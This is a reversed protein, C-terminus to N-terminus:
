KGMKKLGKMIEKVVTNAGERDGNLREINVHLEYNNTINMGGVTDLMNSINPKKIAPLVDKIKEMIKATDLIDRTQNKNLVLEKKHLLAVKGDNGAWEGTYGGSRFPILLKRGIQLKRPDPQANASAITSWKYPNGYYAKAIDWLTDGAKVTYYRPSPAPPPAPPTPKTPAPAPTPTYWNPSSVSTGSGTYATYGTQSVGNVQGVVSGSAYMMNDIALKNMEAFEKKVAESFSAFNQTLNDFNGKSMNTLEQSMLGLESTLSSFSGSIFQNRMDAWYKEDNLIEDYHTTINEKETDLESVKTDYSTQDAEKNANVADIQAQKQEELSQRLLEDQRAKMFDSIEEEVTALEKKLEEVKKRGELSNDRSLLSIKNLLEAKKTNKEDLQEQYEAQDKEDNMAKLKEDYVSNIKDVEEDYMDMKAKHAKELERKEIDIAKLAMDKMNGYYDKLQKIGDDAVKGRADSIEKEARLVALQADEWAEMAKDLEAKVAKSRDDNAGYKKVANDYQHQLSNKKNQTTAEEEGLKNAKEALLELQEQINDPDTLSLVDIKFEIDDTKAKIAEIATDYKTVIEGIFDNFIELSKNKIDNTISEVSNKLSAIKSLNSDYEQQLKNYEDRQAKTHKSTNSLQKLRNNVTKNRAETASLEKKSISLITNQYSITQKLADRYAVTNKAIRQMRTELQSLLGNYVVLQRDNLSAGKNLEALEENEAFARFDYGGEFNRAGSYISPVITGSTGEGGGGGTAGEGTSASFSSMATAVSESPASNPTSFLGFLGGGSPKPVSNGASRARNARAIYRDLDDMAGRASSVMNSIASKATRASEALRNIASRHSNHQGIMSSTRSSVSKAMDSFASKIKGTSSKYEDALKDVAKEQDNVAKKIKGSASQVGSGANSVAKPLKDFSKDLNDVSKKADRLNDEFTEFGGLNVGKSADKLGDLAKKLQDVKKKANVAKDALDDIDGTAGSLSNKIYTAVDSAVSKLGELIGKIGTIAETNEATGELAESLLDVKQTTDDIGQMLTSFDIQSYDNPLIKKQNIIDMKTITGDLAISADEANQDITALTTSGQGDNLSLKLNGADDEVLGVKIGLEGLQSMLSSLYPSTSGDAMVLKLNGAEDKTVNIKGEFEALQTKVTDLYASRNTANMDNKLTSFKGALVDVASSQNNMADKNANKAETNAKTAETDVVEGSALLVKKGTLIDMMTAHDHGQHKLEEWYKQQAKTMNETNIGVIEGADNYEFKLNSIFDTMSKLHPLQNLVQEETLGLKLSLTELSANWAENQSANEGYIYKLGQLTEIHSALASADSTSYGFLNKTVDTAELAVDIFGETTDILGQEAQKMTEAKISANDYEFGLQAVIRKAEEQTFNLSQLQGELGSFDGSGGQIQGAVDLVGELREKFDDANKLSELSFFSQPMSKLLNDFGTRIEATAKEIEIPNTMGKTANQILQESKESIMRGVDEGISFLQDTREQLQANLKNLEKTDTTKAMKDTIDSFFRENNLILNEVTSRQTDSMNKLHGSAELSALVTDRVELNLRQVEKQIERYAMLAEIKTQQIEKGNDATYTHTYGHGMYQSQEKGDQEELKKQEKALKAIEKGLKQINKIRKAVNEDFTEQKLKANEESLQKAIELEQKMADATQMHAVGKSDVYKVMTPMAKSIKQNVELYENYADTGEKIAGTNVKDQLEIHRNILAELGGETNRYSDVLSKNAKETEEAIKKQKQFHGILKEIAIGVAVFALGIGTSALMSMFATKVMRLGTALTPLLVQFARASATTRALGAQFMGMGTTSTTMFETKLLKLFTITSGISGRFTGMLGLLAGVGFMIAPLAGWSSAFDTAVQALKALGEIAGLMAGSLFADGIAISMETFANKLKNIRAEFSEMYRNNEKMASGESTLATATAQTATQWNNMLALFRSLQYRGAVKVAINQREIDTLDHWKGGLEELIDNVPRVKGEIDYIGVGVDELVGQADGLTTIRSYITKLSNGIIKGSEMTVSSIATIHGISEEMTVGFTKATSATKSMGEALQKTSVAFNNDVENFSDAIRVSEDALIGFANMTGVLSESAEQATLESVNSMLTATKTIALLQRENFQGFTRAFEELTGMIDHINNGLEKSLGIAGEFIYDINIHDDAVRKLNTLSADVKLIEQGMAQFSHITGYFATMSAMWVPVRAMAIKLQEFVGLNRNANYDVGQATQRLANNARDLDVTFTKVTKGTGAMRVQMRQVARGLSDTTEIMRVTEVKGKYIQGIYKQLQAIDGTDIASRINGLQEKQKLNSGAGSGQLLTVIRNADRKMEQEKQKLKRSVSDLQREVDGLSRKSNESLQRMQRTFSAETIGGIDALRRLKESVKDVSTTMKRAMEDQWKGDKINALRRRAKELDKVTRIQEVMAKTETMYSKAVNGGQQRVTQELKKLERAMKLREKTIQLDAQKVKQQDKLRNTLKEAELRAERLEDMSNSGRVQKFVDGYQSRKSIDNIQKTMKIVDQMLKKRAFIVDNQGKLQQQLVAEEKIQRQLAKVADNTLKGSSAKAELEGFQRFLNSRGNGKNLKEIDAYLGMLQQKARHVNREVTNITEQNIPAFKKANADWQYRIKQVVGNAKELQAIFGTLNGQADKTQFSAFLGDSGFQQKMYKKAQDVQAVYKKYDFGLVGANNPVNINNSAGKSAQQTQQQMKKVQQGYKKNFEEVTKYVDQLQKKIQKASGAVDIQVQLKIPTKATKSDHIKQTLASLQKNLDKITVDFQVKLKVPKNELKKSIEDVQQRIKPMSGKVDLEARIKVVQAKLLMNLDNSGQALIM